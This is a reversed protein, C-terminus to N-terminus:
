LERERSKFSLSSIQERGKFIEQPFGELGGQLVHMSALDRRNHGVRLSRHVRAWWAGRGLSNKLCSCHLPNGNRRQMFLLLHVWVHQVSGDTGRARTPRETTDSESHGWPQLGDPEGTWPTKWALIRLPDGNGAWQLTYDWKIWDNRM